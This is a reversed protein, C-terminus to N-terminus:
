RSSVLRRCGSSTSSTAPWSVAARRISGASRSGPRAWARPALGDQALAQEARRELDLRERTLRAERVSGSAWLLSVGAPIAVLAFVMAVNPNDIGATLFSALALLGYLLSAHAEKRFSGWALTRSAEDATEDANVRRLMHLRHRASRAWALAAGSCVLGLMALVLLRVM